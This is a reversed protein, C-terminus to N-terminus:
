AIFRYSLSLADVVHLGDSSKYLRLPLMHAVVRERRIAAHV